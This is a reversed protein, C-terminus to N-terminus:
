DDTEAEEQGVEAVVSLVHWLPAENRLMKRVAERLNEELQDEFDM